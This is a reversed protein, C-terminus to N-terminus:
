GLLWDRAAKADAPSYPYAFESMPAQARLVREPLGIRSLVNWEALLVTGEELAQNRDYLSQRNLRKQHGTAHLLEHLLTCYYHLADARRNRLLVWNIAVADDRIFYVGHTRARFATGKIERRFQRPPIRFREVLSRAEGLAVNLQRQEDRRLRVGGPSRFGWRGYCYPHSQVPEPLYPRWTM